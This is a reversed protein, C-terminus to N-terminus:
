AAVRPPRAVAEVLGRWRERFASGPYRTEVTRRGAAGLRRARDRDALLELLHQHLRRPDEDIFGNVGNVVPSDPKPVTVVPQGSAMAELVALNQGNRCWTPVTDLLARYRSHAHLRWPGGCPGQDPTSALAADVQVVPLGATARGLTPADMTEPLLAGLNGVVLVAPEEGSFPGYDALDLGIPLIEGGLDWERRSEEHLFVPTVGESELRERVMAGIGLSDSLTPPTTVVFVAPAPGVEADDLDDVGYCVVLDYEDKGLAARARSRSIVTANDPLRRALRWPADRDAAIQPVVDWADGQRALLSVLRDNWSFSLIRRPHCM